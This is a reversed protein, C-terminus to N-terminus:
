PQGRGAGRAASGDSSFVPDSTARYVMPKAGRLTSLDTPHPAPMFTMSSVTYITDTAFIRPAGRDLGLAFELPSAVSRAPPTQFVAIAADAFSFRRALDTRAGLAAVAGSNHVSSHM